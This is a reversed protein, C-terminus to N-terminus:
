LIKVARATNRSPRLFNGTNMEQAFGIRGCLVCVVTLGKARGMNARGGAVADPGLIM